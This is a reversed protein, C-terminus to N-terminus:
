ENIKEICEEIVYRTKPQIYESKFTDELIKNAKDVTDIKLYKMLFIIDKIDTDTDTRSSMLKMALLYEPIVSYLKLNSFNKLQLKNEYAKPNMFGKISDNLWSAPIGKKLAIKIAIDNIITKPEYVGDIDKTASRASFALCMSAGVAILIEGQINLKKLEENILELNELIEEKKLYFQTM